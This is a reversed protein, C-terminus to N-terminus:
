KMMLSLSLDSLFLTDFLTLQQEALRNFHISELATTSNMQNFYWLGNMLYSYLLYTNLKKENIDNCDMEKYSRLTYDQEDKNLQNIAIFMALEYEKEALCTCEFDILWAKDDITMINSFNIDGHCLVLNSNPLEGITPLSNLLTNLLQKQTDSFSESAILQTITQNINLPPVPVFLKHCNQMLKLAVNIKYKVSVDTKDLTEADVFENVLWHQSAYIVKPSLKVTSTVKSAKQEYEFFTADPSYKVFYRKIVRKYMEDARTDNSHLTVDFCLSSQGAEIKKIIISETNGQKLSGQKFCPLQKIKECLQNYENVSMM